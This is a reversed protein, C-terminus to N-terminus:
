RKSVLINSFYNDGYTAKCVNEIYLRLFNEVIYLYLYIEATRHGKELIDSPLSFNSLNKALAEIIEIIEDEINGSKELNGIDPAFMIEAIDFGVDVPMLQACITLLTNEYDKNNIDFKDYDDMPLYFNITTAM